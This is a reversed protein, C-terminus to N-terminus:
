DGRFVFRGYALYHDTCHHVRRLFSPKDARDHRAERNHDGLIISDIGEIVRTTIVRAVNLIDGLYHITIHLWLLFIVLQLGSTLTSILTSLNNNADSSSLPDITVTAAEVVVIALSFILTSVASILVSLQAM